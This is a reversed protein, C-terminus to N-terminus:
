PAIAKGAKQREKTVAAMDAPRYVLAACKRNMSENDADYTDAAANQQTAEDNALTVHANHDAVRQNFIDVAGQSGHDLTREAETLHDNELALAAMHDAHAAKASAMAARRKDLDDGTALCARLQARSAYAQAAPARSAASAAPQAAVAVVTANARGIGAVAFAVAVVALAFLRAAM